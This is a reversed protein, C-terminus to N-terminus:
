PKYQSGPQLKTKAINEVALQYKSCRWSGQAWLHCRVRNGCVARWSVPQAPHNNGGYEEQENKAGDM